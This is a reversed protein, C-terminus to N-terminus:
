RPAHRAIGPEHITAGAPGRPQPSLEKQHYGASTGVQGLKFTGEAAQSVVSEQIELLNSRLRGDCTSAAAIPLARLEQNETSLFARDGVM